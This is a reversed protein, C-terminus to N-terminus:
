SIDFFIYLNSFIPTLDNTALSLTTCIHLSLNLVYLNKHSFPNLVINVYSSILVNIAALFSFFISKGTNTFGTTPSPLLPVELTSFMVLNSSNTLYLSLKIICSNMSPISNSISAYISVILPSNTSINIFLFIDVVIPPASM